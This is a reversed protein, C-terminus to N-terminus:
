SVLYDDKEGQYLELFTIRFLLNAKPTEFTPSISRQITKGTEEQALEKKKCSFITDVSV